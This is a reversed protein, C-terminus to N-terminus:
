ENKTILVVNSDNRAALWRINGNNSKFLGIKRIEGSIKLTSKKNSIPIFGGKGDGLAIFGFGADNRPTEVESHYLNGGAILDPFNDKNLDTIVMSNISSTQLQRPLSVQRLETQENIFVSSGFTKAKLNYANSVQHQPYVDEFTAKSFETYNAFRKKISPMQQSSCERGRVPYLTNDLHYGLAIDLTGTSDFDFASVHFPSEISAKFKYNLGLNGAILDEDGDNDLDSSTVCNWWGTTENTSLKENVNIFNGNQNELITLPMWEGVIALDPWGDQNIDTWTADTVMGPPLTEDMKILSYSSSKADECKLLYSSSPLPYQGPTQRSGVFLDLDGDKDYDSPTAVSSSIPFNPLAVKTFGEDHNIYLRDQYSAHGEAFENGGSVVYLDMLGDDNADFFLASVDESFADQQFAPINMPQFDGSSQQLYINGPNGVSGGLYFDDLGDNNIDGIALAPGQTSMKHPLLVEREFDDFENEVHEANVLERTNFMSETPEMELTQYDTPSQNILLRQNSHQNTLLQSNGNPWKVIISDIMETRDLGFHAITESSSLYGRSPYIEQHQWQHGSKISIKSGIAQFNDETGTLKIQLHNTSISLNEYVHSTDDLNNVVLDLDGDLDLDAYASGNSFGKFALGYDPKIQYSLDGMNLFARNPTRNVPVKSLLDLYQNPHLKGYAQQIRLFANFDNDNVNRRMGNTIHLDKLGDNNMDFFLASWSWDTNAVGCMEAIDSFTNNGNNLHLSNRMYQYHLGNTIMEEFQEPNMASMNAKQQQNNSSMMDLQIIDMHGDNNIDAVDTGMGFNSTHNMQSQLQNSFTGNQNNIYLFDPSKLDNSVFIDPWGDSNYDSISIGLTLGFNLVGAEETVDTFIDGDNRYFRDTDMSDPANNKESYFQASASFSTPRYNGIYLDLDGDRDFDLFASQMTFGPDAIGLQEASEKFTGDKQNIFLLNKGGNPGSVSVYIDVWGDNNVDAMTSGTTWTYKPITPLNQATVKQFKMKGQNLYLENSVMNGTFYIDPLEDNNIDGISVGGGFYIFPYTLYNFSRNEITQNYFDIGSSKVNLRQFSTSPERSIENGCGLLFSISIVAM